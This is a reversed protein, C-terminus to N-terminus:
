GNSRKITFFPSKYVNLIVKCYIRDVPYNILCQDLKIVKM